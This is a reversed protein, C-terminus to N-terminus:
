FSLTERLRKAKATFGHSTISKKLCKLYVILASLSAPASPATLEFKQRLAKRGAHISNSLASFIFPPDTVHRVPQSGRMSDRAGPAMRSLVSEKRMATTIKDPYEWTRRSSARFHRAEKYGRHALIIFLCNFRMSSPGHQNSAPSPGPESKNGQVPVPRGQSSNEQLVLQTLQQLAQPAGPSPVLPSFGSTGQSM